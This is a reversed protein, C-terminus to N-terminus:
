RLVQCSRAWNFEGVKESHGAGSLALLSFSTADISEDGWSGDEFQHYALWTLSRRKHEGHGELRWPTEGAAQAWMCMAIGWVIGPGRWRREGGGIGGGWGGGSGPSRSGGAGIM